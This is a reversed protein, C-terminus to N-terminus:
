EVSHDMLNRREAPIGGVKFIGGADKLGLATKLRQGAQDGGFLRREENKRHQLLASGKLTRGDDVATRADPDRGPHRGVCGPLRTDLERTM